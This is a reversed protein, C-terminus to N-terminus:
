RAPLAEVKWVLAGDQEHWRLRQRAFSHDPEALFFLQYELAITAEGRQGVLPYRQEVTEGPMIQTTPVLGRQPRPPARFARRHTEVAREQPAISVVLTLQRNNIEGPVAHGAGDNTLRVILERGGVEVDVTLARELLVRDRGGLMRHDRGSRPEGGTVLPRVVTPMHCAQCTMRPERAFRSGLWEELTGHLGHCPNCTINQTITPEHRPNCPAARTPGPGLSEAGRVHCAICDVGEHYRDARIVIPVELGLDYINAPIHCPSCEVRLPDSPILPHSGWPRSHPSKQWEDGIAQHCTSCQASSTFALPARTTEDSARSAIVVPAPAIAALPDHRLRDIWGLLLALLGALVIVTGWRAVVWCSM